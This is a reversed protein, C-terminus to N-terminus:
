TGPGRGQPGRRVLVQVIKGQRLVDFALPADPSELELQDFLWFESEIKKGNFRLLIDGDVIQGTPDQRVPRLGAREAPSGAEVETILLGEKIGITAAVASNATTVGFDPAQLQGRSILRPVLRNLTDVPIAFGIGANSGSPSLIAMSMGILRGASDLLPGGSNGPNIAADTQIMGTMRRGFFSGPASSRIQRDLASVVGTTLTHDLGFPNGIAMVTQGVQLDSSRGLAIPRMESFPAFVKLVAVDHELSRAVVRAKYRKGNSLTVQVENAEVVEAGRGPGAGPLDVTVVHYNTVVHGLDDWIFGTGTGPPLQFVDGTLLNQFRQTSAANIYVVSAKAERFARILSLEPSQLPGRSTVSRPRSDKRAAEIAREEAKTLLPNPRQYQALLQPGAAVWLGLFVKVVRM